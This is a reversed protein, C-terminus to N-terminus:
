WTSILCRLFESLESKSCTFLNQLHFILTPILCKCTCFANDLHLSICWVKAENALGIQEMQGHHLKHIGLVLIVVDNKTCTQCTCKRWSYLAAILSKPQVSGDALEYCLNLKIHFEFSLWGERHIEVSSPFRCQRDLTRCIILIRILPQWTLRPFLQIKIKKESWPNTMVVFDVYKAELAMKLVALRKLRVNIKEFVPLFVQLSCRM